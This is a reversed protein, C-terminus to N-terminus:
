MKLKLHLQAAIHMFTSEYLKLFFKHIKAHFKKINVTWVKEQKVKVIRTTESRTKIHFFYCIFM